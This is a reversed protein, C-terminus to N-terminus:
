LWARSSIVASAMSVTNPVASLKRSKTRWCAASARIFASARPMMPFTISLIWFRSSLTSASTSCKRLFSGVM